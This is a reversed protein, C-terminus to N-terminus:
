DKARQAIAWGIEAMLRVREGQQIASSDAANGALGRAYVGQVIAAIRFFALAKYFSWHPVESRSTARAYAALVEDERPVGLAVFDAGVLGGAVGPGGPPLDYAM